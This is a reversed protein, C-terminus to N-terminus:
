TAFPISFFSNHWYLCEPASIGCVWIKTRNSVAPFPVYSVFFSVSCKCSLLSVTIWLSLSSFFLPCDHTKWSFVKAPRSFRRVSIQFKVPSIHWGSLRQPLFIIATMNKCSVFSLVPFSVSCCSPAVTLMALAMFLITCILQCLRFLLDIHPSCM